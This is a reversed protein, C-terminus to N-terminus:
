LEIQKFKPALAHMVLWGMPRQAVCWNMGWEFMPAAQALPLPFFPETGDLLFRVQPRWVKRLWNFATKALVPERRCASSTDRMARILFLVWCQDEVGM